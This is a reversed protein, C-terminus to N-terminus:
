GARPELVAVCEVHHTHPFLDYGTLATVDYGHDVATRLDRALAAPDCAVYVIRRPALETLATMVATGAGSRPPDLVVADVGSGLAEVVEASVGAAHLTAQPTDHLNRRADKVARDNVEVADVRGTEGVARALPVTFLGAGSYLDAVRQGPEPRVAALVADVLAAPADRHVQWFGTADVRYALEGVATSVRERVAVRAPAASGRRGRRPARRPALSGAPDALDVPRGGALVVVPGDSPAVVDLRTGPPVGDWRGPAFLGAEAIAPVALPMQELPVVDHTRHRYMGPRSAADLVLDIRTRTGLGERADDDGLPEVVIPGLHELELHGIRRLTDRVVEAKWRRQAALALHALEGGGVGGPGAEPWRSPVRDPSAEHVAVADGRWFKRGEGAETLRVDVVEGPATHRVFVVRGEVRAVCHGGHAPPGVTVGTLVDM